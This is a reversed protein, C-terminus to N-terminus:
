SGSDVALKIVEATIASGRLTLHHLDRFFIGDADGIKCQYNDCFAGYSDAVAVTDFKAAADQLRANYISHRSNNSEASFSCRHQAPHWVVGYKCKYAPVELSPTGNTVIVQASSSVVLQFIEEWNVSIKELGPKSLYESIVIVRPSPIEELIEPISVHNGLVSSNRVWVVNNGPFTRALGAFLHAGHSDGLVLVDVEGQAVTQLCSFTYRCEVSIRSMESFVEEENLGGPIEAKTVVREVHGFLFVTGGLAVSSCLLLIPIGTRLNRRGIGTALRFPQEVVKFALMSLPVSTLVGILAASKQEPFLISAFVAFPWHWLYLSYSRDGIFQVWRLTPARFFEQMSRSSGWRLIATVSLVLWIVSLNLGPQETPAAILIALMGVWGLSSLINSSLESNKHQPALAVLAGAIFEWARSVPSYFGFVTQGRDIFGLLETSGIVWAAFSLFGVAISFVVFKRAQLAGWLVLFAFPWFIYFQEEVSLSWLHLMFNEKSPAAFYDFELLSTAINAGSLIGAGGTILGASAEEIRPFVLLSLPVTFVVLLILGPFLRRVRKIWFAWINLRGETQINRLILQSVVFGSVVFFVDVGLYGARLLLGSHFLLVAVVAIARLAQIDSRKNMDWTECRKLCFPQDPQLQQRGPRNRGTFFISLACGGRCFSECTGPGTISEKGPESM